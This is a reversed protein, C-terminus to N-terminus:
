WNDNVQDTILFFFKSFKNFLKMMIVQNDGNIAHDFDFTTGYDPMSTVGTQNFLRDWDIEAITSRRNNTMTSETTTTSSSPDAM